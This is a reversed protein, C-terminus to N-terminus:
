GHRAHRRIASIQGGESGLGTHVAVDVQCTKETVFLERGDVVRLKREQQMAEVVPITPNSDELKELLCKTITSLGAGSDLVAKMLTVKPNVADSVSLDVMGSLERPEIEVEDSSIASGTSSSVARWGSIIPPVVSPTAAGPGTLAVVPDTPLGDSAVGGQASGDEGVPVAARGTM